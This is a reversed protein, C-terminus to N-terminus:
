TKMLEQAKVNGAETLRIIPYHTGDSDKIVADIILRQRFLRKYSAKSIQSRHVHIGIALRMLMANDYADTRESM